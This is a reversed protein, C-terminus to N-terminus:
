LLAMIGFFCRLQKANSPVPLESLKTILDPDPKIGQEDFHSGLFTVSSKKYKVKEPNITWGDKQLEEMLIGICEEHEHEDSSGILIDDVYVFLSSSPPMREKVRRVTMTLADNFAGMSNIWGFPCRKFRYWVGDFDFGFADRIKPSLPLQMFGKQLDFSSWLSHKPVSALIRNRDLATSQMAKSVSNLMRFDHVLRKKGRDKRVVIMPTLVRPKYQVKEIVDLHELESLLPRIENAEAASYARTKLGGFNPNGVIYDDDIRYHTTEGLSATLVSPFRSVLDDLNHSTSVTNVVGGRERIEEVIGSIRRFQVKKDPEVLTAVLGCRSGIQHPSDGLNVVQARLAQGATRISGIIFVSSTPITTPVLAVSQGIVKFPLQVTVCSRPPIVTSRGAPFSVTGDRRMPRVGRDEDEEIMLASSPGVRTESRPLRVANCQLAQGDSFRLIDEVCDISGGIQAIGPKGLITAQADKVVDFEVPCDRGGAKLILTTRGLSKVTEGFAGGLTRRDEQGYYWGKKSLIRAPILNVESGTDLMFRIKSTPGDQTRTEMTAHLLRRSVNSAQETKIHNVRPRVWPYDSNTQNCQSAKHGFRKCINCRGRFGKWPKGKTAVEGPDVDQQGFDVTKIADPAGEPEENDQVLHVRRNSNDEPHQATQWSLFHNAVTIMKEFSLDDYRCNWSLFRYFRRDLKPVVVKCAESEPTRRCHMQFTMKAEMIFVSPNPSKQPGLEKLKKLDDGDDTTVIMQSFCSVIADWAKDLARISDDMSMGTVADDSVPLTKQHTASEVENRIAAGISRGFESTGDFFMMLTRIRQVREEFSFEIGGIVEQHLESNWTTLIRTPYSVAATSLGKAPVTRPRGTRGTATWRGRPQGRNSLRLLGWLTAGLPDLIGLLPVFWSLVGLITPLFLVTVVVVGTVIVVATWKFATDKLGNMKDTVAFWLKASTGVVREKQCDIFGTCNARANKWTEFSPSSEEVELISPGFYSLILFIGITLLSRKAVM